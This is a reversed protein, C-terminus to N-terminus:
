PELESESGTGPAGGRATKPRGKPAPDPRERAANEARGKPVIKNRLEALKQLAEMPTLRDLDLKKLEEVVPNPPPAFLSLQHATVVHKGADLRPREEADVRESELEALVAKAREIVERPIGALRAVHIGYSKDTAGEVIKRLFVVHDGWEKVEVHLNKVGPLLKALETLEHYHTAFLTRAGVRDHIHETVAWAISVGDYTSTGRGVEDLVILSRRTANNLINATENMEVMFTSNGRTLEDSAGVRTFIRDVVGIHAERAPVYSGMQAMLVALAVQRIYTSKGAMNPGTILLVRSGEGDLSVDNPVFREEQVKEVVPHRGDVIRIVEGDDVTPKAYRGEQAVEALSALVDVRAVAAATKQLIAIQKAADERVRLFLEYELRKASTTANQVQTEKEKLQPTIYREANKVTQKRIYEVPVKAQHVNTVEIYYGFVQNFGVKLSPIGTREIEQAEFAAIWGKADRAMSRVNDLEADYGDRILGGEKITIPPEDALAATLVGHIETMPDIAANTEVLLRAKRDSLTEKLGPLAELSSRLGILDRANARGSGLKAVIREIDHVGRLDEALEGRLTPDLLEEVSDLRARIGEVGALPCTVWERLLRAGMSTRTRDLVWVLSGRLDNDRLTATLELSLQTSRDLYVKDDRRHREIRTLHRLSTKQTEELYAYLAGACGVGLDLEEVGFGALSATAFHKTLRRRADEREFTWPAVTTVVNRAVLRLDEVIPDQFDEAVLCEAPRLRTVEDVLDRRSIDEAEFAGTSLDVWALGAREGAVAVAALYNSRTRDLINEETLTGPTVVRVVDREVLGEAQDAEQLQECIAVRQGARILKAVYGEVSQVPVGAMDVRKDGNFRGTLTLGLLRSANRADENFTEYFDGLRFFLIERPYKRKISHYQEMLPTM